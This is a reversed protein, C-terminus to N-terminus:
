ASILRELESVFANAQSEVSYDQLRQSGLIGQSVALERRGVYPLLAERLAAVDGAKFVQGTGPHLVEPLAGADSVVAPMANRYADLVVRGFTEAYRSPAVLVDCSLLLQDVADQSLFGHDIVPLGEQARREMESRLPGNGAVHLEIAGKDFGEIADLLDRFGKEERLRGLYAFRVVGDDERGERMRAAAEVSAPEYVVANPIVVRRSQAFLGQDAHVNLAYQSPAIVTKVYRCQRKLHARMLRCPLLPTGECHGHRACILTSNPCLLAYDRTTHAVPIGHASASRWLQPTIGLINNTLVAQPRVDHLVRDITRRNLPNDITLPKNAIKKVGGKAARHEGYAMLADFRRRLVRVGGIEEDSDMDGTTLVYAEIGQRAMQEAIGQVSLEAGGVVQPAYFSNAILVRM